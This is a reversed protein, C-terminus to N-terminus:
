PQSKLSYFRFDTKHGVLNQQFQYLSINDEAVTQSLPIEQIDLHEQMKPPSSQGQLNMAAKNKDKSARSRHSRRLSPHHCPISVNAENLLL